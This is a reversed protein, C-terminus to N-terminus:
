NDNINDGLSKVRNINNSLVKPRSHMKWWPGRFISDKINQYKFEGNLNLQSIGFSKLNLIHIFVLSFGIVFGVLGLVSSLLLLLLRTYIIPANLKPVLIGTIGTFAVLIITPAAVLGAEVAAQGIVIAGLVSISQGVVQPMRIGTERLIDFVILMFAVELAAPLPVSQRESAIILLFPTPLMEHHFAVLAIYFAPLATTTFFSLFRVM